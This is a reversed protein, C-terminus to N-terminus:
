IFSYELRTFMNYQNAAAGAPISLWLFISAYDDAKIDWGTVPKVVGKINCTEGNGLLTFFNMYNVDPYNPTHTGIANVKMWQGGVPDNLPTGGDVADLLETGSTKTWLKVGLIDIGDVIVEKSNWVKMEWVSSNVPNLPDIDITGLDWVSATLDTFTGGVPRGEWTIVPNPM